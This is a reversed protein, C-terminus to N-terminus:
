NTITSLMGSYKKDKGKRKKKKKKKGQGAHSLILTHMLVKAFGLKDSAFLFGQASGLHRAPMSVPVPAFVPARRARGQSEVEWVSDVIRALLLEM